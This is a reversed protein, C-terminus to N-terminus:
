HAKAQPATAAASRGRMLIALIATSVALRKVDRHRRRTARFALPRSCWSASQNMEIIPMPVAMAIILRGMDRHMSMPPSPLTFVSIQQCFDRAARRRRAMADIFRIM